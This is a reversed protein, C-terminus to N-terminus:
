FLKIISVKLSAGMMDRQYQETPSSAPSNSNSGHSEMPSNVPELMEDPVDSINHMLLHQKLNGKTTFANQCIRCVYPKEKTHSRM